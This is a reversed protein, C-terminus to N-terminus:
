EYIICFWNAPSFCYCMLLKYAVGGPFSKAGCMGKGLWTVVGPYSYRLDSAEAATIVQVLSQLLPTLPLVVLSFVSMKLM